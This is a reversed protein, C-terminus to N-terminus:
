QGPGQVSRGPGGRIGEIVTTKGAGDPGLLVVDVGSPPDFWRGIRRVAGRLYHGATWFPRRSAPGKAVRGPARPSTRMVDDWAGSAAAAVIRETSSRGWFRAVQRRCGAPDRRYLESLRRGIIKM